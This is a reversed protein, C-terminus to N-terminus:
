SGMGPLTYSVPMNGYATMAASPSIATPGFAPNPRGLGFMGYAGLGSQIARNLGDLPSRVPQSNAGQRLLDASVQRRIRSDADGGMLMEALANMNM